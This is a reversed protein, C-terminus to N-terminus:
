RWVERLVVIDMTKTIGGKLHKEGGGKEDVTRGESLAWAVSESGDPCKSFDYGETDRAGGVGLRNMGVVCEEIESGLQQVIWRWEM